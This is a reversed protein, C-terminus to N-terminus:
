PRVPPGSRPRELHDISSLAREVERSRPSSSSWPSPPAGSRSSTWVCSRLSRSARAEVPLRSCTLYRTVTPEGDREETKEWVCRGRCAGQHLKYTYRVESPHEAYSRHERLTVAEALGDAGLGAYVYEDLDDDGLRVLSVRPRGGLEAYGIAQEGFGDDALSLLGNPGEYAYTSRASAEVSRLRGAVFSYTVTTEGASASRLRGARDYRFDIRPGDSSVLAAIRDSADREVRVSAGDRDTRELFRGDRDYAEVSHDLQYREYGLGTRVVFDFGCEFSYFFSEVGDSARPFAAAFAQRLYDPEGRLQALANVPRQAGGPMREYLVEALAAISESDSQIFRYFLRDSSRAGRLALRDADLSVLRAEVNALWGPGFMGAETRDSRYTRTLAVEDSAKLDQTSVLFSGSRPDVSAEASAGLSLVLVLSCLRLSM